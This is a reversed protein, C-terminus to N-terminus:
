NGWICYLYAMKFSVVTRLFHPQPTKATYAKLHGGLGSRFNSVM